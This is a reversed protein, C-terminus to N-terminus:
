DWGLKKAWGYEVVNALHSRIVFELLTTHEGLNKGSPEFLKAV